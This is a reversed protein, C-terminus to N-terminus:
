RLRRSGGPEEEDVIDEDDSHDTEVDGLEEEDEEDVIGRMDDDFLGRGPNRPQRDRREAM